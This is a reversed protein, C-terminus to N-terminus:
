ARPLPSCTPSCNVISATSQNRADSCWGQVLTRMALSIPARPSGSAMLQSFAASRRASSAPAAPSARVASFTGTHGSTFSMSSLAFGASWDFAAAASAVAPSGAHRLPSTLTSVEALAAGSVRAAAAVASPAISSGDTLFTSIAALSSVLGSTLAAASSACTRGPAPREFTNKTSGNRRSADGSIRAAAAAPTTRAPPSAM